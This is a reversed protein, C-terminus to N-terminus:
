IKCQIEIIIKSLNFNEGRETTVMMEFLYIWVFIQVCILELKFVYLQNFVAGVQLSTTFSGFIVM